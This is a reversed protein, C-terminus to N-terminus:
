PIYPLQYDRFSKKEQDNTWKPFKRNKDIGLPLHTKESTEEYYSTKLGSYVKFIALTHKSVDYQRLFNLQRKFCKLYTELHINFRM